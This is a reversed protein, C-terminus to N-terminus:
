IVCKLEQLIHLCLIRGAGIREAVAIVAPLVAVSPHGNMSPLQDDYDHVHAAIGNIIAANYVDTTM